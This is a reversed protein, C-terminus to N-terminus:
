IHILVQIRWVMIETGDHTEISRVMNSQRYKMVVTANVVKENIMRVM